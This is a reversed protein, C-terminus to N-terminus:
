EPQATRREVSWRRFAVGSGAAAALAAIVLASARAGPQVTFESRFGGDAAVKYQVRIVAGLPIDDTDNPQLPMLHVAGSNDAFAVVPGGRLPDPQVVRGLSSRWHHAEAAYAYASVAWVSFAVALVALGLGLGLLRVSRSPM